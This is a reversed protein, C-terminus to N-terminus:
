RRGASWRRGRQDRGETRAATPGVMLWAYDTRDPRAGRLDGRPRGAHGARDARDRQAEAALAAQPCGPRPSIVGLRRVTTGCCCSTAPPPAAGRGGRRVARQQGPRGGPHDAARADPGTSPVPSATTYPPPTPTVPSGSVPSGSVPSGCARRRCAPRHWLRGDTPGHLAAHDAGAPHEADPPRRADGGAPCCRTRCPAPRCSWGTRPTARGARTAAAAAGGGRHRRGAAGPHRGARLVLWVATWTPARCWWRPRDSRVRCAPGARLLYAATRGTPLRGSCWTAARAATWARLATLGAPLPVPRARRHTPTSASWGATRSRGAPHRGRVAYPQDADCRRRRQGPRGAAAPGGGRQRRGRGGLLAVALAPRRVWRAVRGPDDTGSGARDRTAPPRAGCHALPPRCPSWSSSVRCGDTGARRPRPNRHPPAAPGTLRTGAGGRAPGLHGPCALPRRGAGPEAGAAARDGRARRRAPGGRGGHRRARGRGGARDVPGARLRAVGTRERGGRRFPEFLGPVDAPECRSAPTAWWWGPAPRRGTGTRVWLRGHLHNYRVANEILNGALRDLLSPDGVVPAPTLTPRSRRPQAARGGRAGGVARRRRRHGPRGAGQPGAAPRGAGRPPGAGAARRGARQGARSADRVVKAMRRYEAVDAEPDGLTVDIETRMVALPTRLEHSANAVFRKQTEFAADIRDLMADFTAALEAVEDDAGVYRIRQDLTEEGLRSRPRPSRSCRACRGAPWWTRRRRRRDRQDCWRSWARSWCSAALRRRVLEAQWQAADRRAGTPRADGDLGPPLQPPRTCRTASWCGPWCCWSRRRRRGAARRQAPHAAAAPDPRLGLALTRAQPPRRDVTM